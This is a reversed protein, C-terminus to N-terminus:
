RKEYAYIISGDKVIQRCEYLGGSNTFYDSIDELENQIFIHIENGLRAIYYNERSEMIIDFIWIDKTLKIM